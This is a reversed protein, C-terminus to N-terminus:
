AAVARRLKNAVTEHDGKVRLTEGDRVTIVSVRDPEAPDPRLTVVYEPNIYIPLGSVSDLFQVIM